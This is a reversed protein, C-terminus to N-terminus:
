KISFLTNSGAGLMTTPYAGNWKQVKTYEVYEPTLQAQLKRIAEAQGAAEIVRAASDGRATIIKKQSEGLSSQKEAMVREADLKARNKSIIATEIAPDIAKPRSLINFNDVIFGEKALRTTLSSTIANEFKPLNNLLTDMSIVGSEDQIAKRVVNRLYTKSISELNDTKYKLYIKSAKTADVRYNLGVDVKFGTGGQTSFSIQQGEKDGEDGSESWVVHQQTTPITVIQSVGIMYGNWGTLLPLSDIGRYSGGNEIKFGAETPGVRTVCSSAFMTTAILLAFIGGKISKKM